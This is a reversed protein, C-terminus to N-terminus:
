NLIDNFCNQDIEKLFPIMSKLNSTKNQPLTKPSLVQLDVEIVNRAFRGSEKLSVCTFDREQGSTKYKLENLNTQDYLLFKVKSFPVQGFNMVAALKDFSGQPVM